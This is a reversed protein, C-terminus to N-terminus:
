ATAARLCAASAPLLAAGRGSREGPVANAVTDGVKIQSIPKSTGDAMLVATGATFSHCRTAAVGGLRGGTIAGGEAADGSAQGSPRDLRVGAEEGTEPSSWIRPRSSLMSGTPSRQCRGCDTATPIDAPTGSGM